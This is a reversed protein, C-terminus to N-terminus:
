VPSRKRSRTHHTGSQPAAPGPSQNRQATERLAHPGVGVAVISSHSYRFGSSARSSAESGYPQSSARPGGSRSPVFM